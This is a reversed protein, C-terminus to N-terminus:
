RDDGTEIRHQDLAKEARIRQEAERLGDAKSRGHVARNEAARAEERRRAANKRAARLNVVDGM